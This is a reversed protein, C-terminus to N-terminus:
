IQPVIQGDGKAVIGAVFAAGFLLKHWALNTAKVPVLMPRNVHYPSIRGCVEGKIKNLFEVLQKDTFTSFDVVTKNCSGCHRGNGNATMNDWNQTCPDPITVTLTNQKKM